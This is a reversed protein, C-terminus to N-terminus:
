CPYRRGTSVPRAPMAAYLQQLRAEGLDGPRVPGDGARSPSAPLRM